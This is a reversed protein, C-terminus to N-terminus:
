KVVVLIKEKEKVKRIHFFMMVSDPIITLLIVM